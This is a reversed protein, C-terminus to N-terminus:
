LISENREEEVRVDGVWGEGSWGEAAEGWVVGDGGGEGGRGGADDDV